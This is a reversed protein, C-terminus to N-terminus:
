YRRFPSTLAWIMGGSVAGVVITVILWGIWGIVAVIIAQGTDLDLGESIAMIGAILSLIGGVLAGIWGICPIVSLIGLVRPANAYGLVRLMGEFSGRGKYLAQGVYYTIAAWVVWGVLGSILGGIFPMFFTRSGAATGIASLLTAVIVVIAAESTANPDAEIEKFVPFDLKIIRIIRDVM